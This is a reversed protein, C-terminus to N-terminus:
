LKLWIAAEERSTFINVKKQTAALANIVFNVVAEQKSTDAMLVAIKKAGDEEILNKFNKISYKTMSSVKTTAADVLVNWDKKNPFKKYVDTVAKFILDSQIDVNEKGVDQAIFNLEILNNAEDVNITFTKALKEKSLKM